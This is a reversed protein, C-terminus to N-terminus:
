GANLPLTFREACVNPAENRFEVAALRLSERATCVRIWGPMPWLSNRLRLNRHM